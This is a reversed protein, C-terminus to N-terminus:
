KTLAKEPWVTNGLSIGTALFNGVISLGYESLFSEPHFQVGYVPYTNHKVAMPIGNPTQAIITLRSTDISSILSHYRAAKIPSPIGKFIYQGTHTIRSTKGHMPIPAQITKGSYAECICQMGLCVGIIPISPAFRRIVEISIGAYQPTKPGPSIVIYDPNLRSIADVSIKDNRVVTISLKFPFKKSLATEEFLQVLNYTFSDYNDIILISATNPISNIGQM